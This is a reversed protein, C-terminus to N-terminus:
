RGRMGVEECETEWRTFDDFHFGCDDCDKGDPEAMEVDKVPPLGSFGNWYCNCSSGEHRCNKDWTAHVAM